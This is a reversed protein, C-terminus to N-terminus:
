PADLFERAHRALEAAGVDFVGTDLAPLEVVRANRMLAAAARSEEKLSGHTNLVLVPQRPVPLRDEAPYGCVAFYAWNHHPESRLQTVFNSYGRELSVGPNRGTVNFNWADRLSEFDDSLPSSELLPGCVREREGGAAWYPIGAVAVRRVLDPRQAALEIALYAGTHYGGVDFHRGSVLYRLRDLAEGLALAYDELPVPEAPRDSGGYGPTDPAIVVRDTAIQEMFRRYYDGSQATPHFMALPHATVAEADIPQAILVHVQGFRTDVYQRKFVVEAAGTSTVAFLAIALGGLVRLAGSTTM